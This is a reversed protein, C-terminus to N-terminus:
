QREALVDGPGGPTKAAKQRGRGGEGNLVIEMCLVCSVCIWTSRRARRVRTGLDGAGSAWRFAWLGGVVLFVVPKPHGPLSM